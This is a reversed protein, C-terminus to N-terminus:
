HLRSGDVPESPGNGGVALNAILYVPGTYPYGESGEGHGASACVDPLLESPIDASGQM